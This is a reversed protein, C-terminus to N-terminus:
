EERDPKPFAVWRVVIDRAEPPIEDDPRWFKKLLELYEEWFRVLEDPTLRVGGRSFLFHDAWEGMSERQAHFAAMEDLDEVFARQYTEEFLARMEASQKSRPAWRLDRPKSRWWRQKGKALEPVDEIFGFRELERLHYSTAGTNEGLAKALTTATAPGAALEDLIRRRLPHTMAKLVGPDTIEEPRPPGTM